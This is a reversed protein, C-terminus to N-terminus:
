SKVWLVMPKAGMSNSLKNLMMTYKEIGGNDVNEIDEDHLMICESADQSFVSRYEIWSVIIRDGLDKM